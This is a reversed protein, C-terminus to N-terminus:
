LWSGILLFPAWYAPHRYEDTALLSLQAQRLAAAKTSNPTQLYLYFQGILETTAVDSIYWLSAVASKAGSQVAVGALGLAARDDGAATQCASLVLLDLPDDGRASLIQRLGDLTLRDDYTLIFSETYDSSFQGHTAFHAVSFGSSALESEIAELRFTDDQLRRNAPILESVLDVERTVSPLPAFGQVGESLGGILLNPTDSVGPVETLGIAPTTAVAFQEILFQEGDHLAALPVTRLPGGPVIMLTEIDYERLLPLAPEILWEYVRQAPERWADGSNSRELALRLRRITQTALGRNVSATYQLLQGGAEVVTEIRDDLILPYVVAVRSQPSAGPGADLNTSVVCQNAFYDEIEGQKLAELQNRVQRLMTQQDQPAPQRAAQQMLLDAYETYVPGVLTDFTNRSGLVFNSRVANLIAVSREYAAQAEDLRGQARLIRGVQWEWRYHQEPEDAEQAYFVAQNSLSLAEELRADDEYLAGLFGYAYARLAPSQAIRRANEYHRHADGLLARDSRYDAVARRYLDGTALALMASEDGPPLGSVVADITGLQADLRRLDQDDLRARLANIRARAELAPDQIEVAAAAAEDFREIAETLNDSEVAFNGEELQLVIRTAPDLSQARARVFALLGEAETTLGLGLAVGARRLSTIALERDTESIAAAQSCTRLADRLKGQDRLRDALAWLADLRASRDESSAAIERLEALTRSPQAAAPGALLAGLLLGALLPGALLSAALLRCHRFPATSM